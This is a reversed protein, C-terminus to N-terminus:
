VGDDPPLTRDLIPSRFQRKEPVGSLYKAKRLFAISPLSQAVTLKLQRPIPLEFPKFMTRAIFIRTLSSEAFSIFLHSTFFLIACFLFFIDNDMAAREQWLWRLRM